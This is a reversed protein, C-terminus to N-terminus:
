LQCCTLRFNVDENVQQPRANFNPEWFRVNVRHRGVSVEPFVNRARQVEIRVLQFPMSPDLSTSYFGDTAVKNQHISSERILKLVLTFMKKIGSLETLWSDVDGRRQEIPLHLWHHFAPTDFSCAGGAIGIRPRLYCLFENERLEQGLKGTTGQLWSYLQGLQNIISDLALQDIGTRQQMRMLLANLRSVEQSMKGKLDPRDLVCVMDILASICMQSQWRSDSSLGFEIQNFLNELRLCVRILENLPQEYTIIDNPMVIRTM